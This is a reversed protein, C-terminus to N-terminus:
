NHNVYLFLTSISQADRTCPKEPGLKCTPLVLACTVVLINANPCEMEKGRNRVERSLGQNTRRFTVAPVASDAPSTAHRGGACIERLIGKAAKSWGIGRQDRRRFRQCKWFTISTSSKQAPGEWGCVSLILGQLNMSATM